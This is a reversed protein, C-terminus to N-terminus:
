TSFATALFRGPLRGACLGSLRVWGGMIGRLKDMDADMADVSTKMAKITDPAAPAPAVNRPRRVPAAPQAARMPCGM